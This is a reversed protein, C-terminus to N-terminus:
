PQFPQLISQLSSTVFHVCIRRPHGIKSGNQLQFAPEGRNSPSKQASEVKDQFSKEFAKDKFHLSARSASSVRSRSMQLLTKYQMSSIVRVALALPPAPCSNDLQGQIGANEGCCLKRDAAPNKM